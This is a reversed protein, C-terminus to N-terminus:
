IALFRLYKGMSSIEFVKKEFNPFKIHNRIRGHTSKPIVGMAREESPPNIFMECFHFWVFIKICMVFFRLVRFYVFLSACRLMVIQFMLKRTLFIKWTNACACYLLLLLEALQSVASMKYSILQGVNEVKPTKKRNM